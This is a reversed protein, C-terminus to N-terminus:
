KHNETIKKKSAEHKSNDTQFAIESAINVIIVIYVMSYCPFFFNLFSSSFHSFPFSIHQVAFSILSIIAPTFYYHLHSNSSGSKRRYNALCESYNQFRKCFSPILILSQEFTIHKLKIRSTKSGM